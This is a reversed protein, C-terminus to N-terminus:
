VSPWNVEKLIIYEKTIPHEMGNTKQNAIYSQIQELSMERSFKREFFSIFKEYDLRPTVHCSNWKVWMIKGEIDKIDFPFLRCELPRNDYTGNIPEHGSSTYSTQRDPRICETEKIFKNTNHCCYTNCSTCGRLWDFEKVSEKV